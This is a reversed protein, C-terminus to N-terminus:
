DHRHDVFDKTEAALETKGPAMVMFPYYLILRQWENLLLNAKGAGRSYQMLPHTRVEESLDQPTYLIVEDFIGLRRAQRGIRNLSWAM